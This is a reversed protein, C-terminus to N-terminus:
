RQLFSAVITQIANTKVGFSRRHTLQQAETYDGVDLVGVVVVPQGPVVRGLGPVVAVREVLHVFCEVLPVVVVLDTENELQAVNDISDISPRFFKMVRTQFGYFSSQIPKLDVRVNWGKMGDTLISHKVGTVATRDM